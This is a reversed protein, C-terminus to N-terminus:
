FVAYSIAVHSSNLRTSKRDEAALLDGLLPMSVKGDPRVPVDVSLNDNRWVNIKLNDGVGIRYDDIDFALADEPVGDQPLPMNCGVLAGMLLAAIAIWRTM